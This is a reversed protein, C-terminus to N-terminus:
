NFLVEEEGRRLEEGTEEEKEEEKAGVPADGSTEREVRAERKEAEEEVVEEQKTRTGHSQICKSRLSKLSNSWWIM